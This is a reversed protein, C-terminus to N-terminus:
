CASDAFGVSSSAKLQAWSGVLQRVMQGVLQLEHTSKKFPTIAVVGPHEETFVQAPPGEATQSIHFLLGVQREIAGDSIGERDEQSTLLSPQGSLQWSVAHPLFLTVSRRTPM